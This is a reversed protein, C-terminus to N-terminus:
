HIRVSPEHAAAPQIVFGTRRKGFSKKMFMADMSVISPDGFRDIEFFELTEGVSEDLILDWVIWM